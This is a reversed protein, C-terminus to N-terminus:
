YILWPARGSDFLSNLEQNDRLTDMCKWFGKHRYMVLQNENALRELPEKELDCDKDTTLYDLFERNFVFFGCNVFSDLIPKEKWETVNGNSDTNVTGFRSPMRVGCFTGIKGHNRHFKVLEEINIDAVGDGYTVMFLDTDIYKELQKIRSGKQNDEGTGVLWIKWNLLDKNELDSIAGNSLDVVIDKTRNNFNLFYDKIVQGRYGLPLLFENCGYYAYREMIHVLIPKGGIEAMPKPISHTLESMRTGKGGCLIITKINQM